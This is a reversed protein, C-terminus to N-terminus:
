LPPIRVHRWAPIVWSYNEIFKGEAWHAAYGAWRMRGFKIERTTYSSSYL